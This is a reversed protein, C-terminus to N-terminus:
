LAIEGKFVFKAPGQLWIDQFSGDENAHFQVALSGGLTKIAVRNTGPAHKKSVLAAATVGTGCSYTEGEVGREYTRVFLKEGQWEIFNVNIGEKKFASSYRIAQGADVVPYEEISEVFQVWHPSGTNLKYSNTDTSEVQSVSNMHLHVWGNDDVFAEHWGDVANFKYRQKALGQDVVFQVMSRGGNGCMSGEKGDANYYKMTFDAGAETPNLVVMLGDAGIGFRRDCWKAITSENLSPQETRGDLIIFDNGTGQYKYFQIVRSM